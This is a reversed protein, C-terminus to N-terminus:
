HATKKELAYFRIVNRVQEANVSVGRRQLSLSISATSASPFEIMHILIGIVTLADMNEPLRKIKQKESSLAAKSEDHQKKRCAEQKSKLKRDKSLYVAYRGQNCRNLRKKSILRSLLNKVNTKLFGEIEKATLGAESKEILHVITNELTLFTSFHIDKYTWLGNEDFDPTDQLTYFSANRNYSTYYGFKKLARVVTMHSTGLQKCLKKKTTVKSERMKEIVATEKVTLNKM